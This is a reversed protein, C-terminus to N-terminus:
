QIFCLQLPKLATNAHTRRINEHPQLSSYKFNWAFNHFNQMNSSFIYYLKSADSLTYADLIKSSDHFTTLMKKSIHMNMSIKRLSLQKPTM